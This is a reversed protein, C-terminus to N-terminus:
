LLYCKQIEKEIIKNEHIPIVAFQVSTFWKINETFDKHM